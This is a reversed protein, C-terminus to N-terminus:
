CPCIQLWSKLSLEGSLGVFLHYHLTEGVQCHLRSFRGTFKQGPDGVGHHDDFVAVCAVLVLRWCRGVEIDVLAKGHRDAPLPLVVGEVVCLLEQLHLEEPRRQRWFQPLDYCLPIRVGHGQVVHVLDGGIGLALCPRFYLLSDRSDLWLVFILFDCSELSSLIFVEVM